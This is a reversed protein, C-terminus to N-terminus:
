NKSSQAAMQYFQRAQEIAHCLQATASLSRLTARHLLDSNPKILQQNKVARIQPYPQWNVLNRPENESVPQIILEPNLRIVQEISLQPYPVTHEQLVNRAGCLQLHQNPWAKGGISSLPSDWLEYFVSITPRNSYQMRLQHLQERYDQALRQAKDQLGLRQGLRELDLAIDEFTAPEFTEVTMGLQKLRHLDAAPTGSQWVLIADPKLALIKELQLGAYNGVRPIQKAAEPYDAHESTAIIQEGAGLSFILEVLHPALVVLRLKRAPKVETKERSVATKSGLTQASTITSLDPVADSAPANFAIGLFGVFLWRMVSSYLIGPRM